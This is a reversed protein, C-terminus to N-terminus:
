ESSSRRFFQRADEKRGILLQDHPWWMPRERGGEAAPVWSAVKEADAGERAKALRAAAM